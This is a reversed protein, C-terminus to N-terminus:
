HKGTICSSPYRGITDGSCFSGNSPLQAMMIEKFKRWWLKLDNADFKGDGNADLMETAQAQVALWDIDIYGHYAATQIGIFTLGALYAVVYGLRKTAMGSCFGIAGGFGMKMVHPGYVDILKEVPDSSGNDEDADELSAKEDVPVAVPIEIDGSAPACHASNTLVCATIGSLTLALKATMRRGSPM